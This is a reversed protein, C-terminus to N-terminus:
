NAAAQKRRMLIVAGAGAAATATVGAAALFLLTQLTLLLLGLASFGVIQVRAKILWTLLLFVTTKLALLKATSFPCFPNFLM